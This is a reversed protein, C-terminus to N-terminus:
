PVTEKLRGEAICAPPDSVSLYVIKAIQGRITPNNQRFYPRNQPDCPEGPGGCNYGSIVQHCAATEVFEYFPSGPAVDAFTGTAPNQLTWGAAIVDIKSLQGRTVNAFPRFYPRNQADCPEGPGGCTYGSVISHAAATEIVEFFPFDRPVDSFTYASATPTVIPVNFGLVVIKVMQGRTTQNYPRFTGDLYGSIVGRCALYLVPTYFYDSPHVDSFSIGCPTATPGPTFTATPPPPTATACVGPAYPLKEAVASYSGNWGGVKLAQTGGFAAALTRLGTNLAPGATWTAGQDTSYETSPLYSTWGGGVVWIRVGDFFAGPGGRATNLTTMATWSNTAPNYRQVATLDTTAGTRGGLVYVYTGDSTAAAYQIPILLPAGSSWLGTTTDYIYNTTGEAGTTSGGLVYVKTGLATVAHAANVAPIPSVTAVVNAVPDYREVTNYVTGGNSGGPLYIYSGVAAAGTNELGPTFTARPTWINTAPDYETISNSTAGGTTEGGLAYFKGNGEFYALGLRNRPAPLPAVTTWTTFTGCNPTATALPGQPLVPKGVDTKRPTAGSSSTASSGWAAHSGAIVLGGLILLCFGILAIRSWSLM